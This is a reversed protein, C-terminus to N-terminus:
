IVTSVERENHPQPHTLINPAPDYPEDWAALPIDIACDCCKTNVCTMPLFIFVNQTWLDFLSLLSSLLRVLLM